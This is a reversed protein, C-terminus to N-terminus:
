VYQWIEDYQGAEFSAAIKQANEEVKGELESLRKASKRETREILYNQYPSDSSWTVMNGGSWPDLTVATVRLYYGRPIRWDGKDYMARIQIHSFSKLVNTKIYITEM